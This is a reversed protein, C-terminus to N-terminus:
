VLVLRGRFSTPAMARAGSGQIPCIDRPIASIEQFVDDPSLGTAKTAPPEREREIQRERERQTYCMRPPPVKHALSLSLKHTLTLVHSLTHFFSLPSLYRSTALTPTLTLTLTRTLTLSHTQTLFLSRYLSTPPVGGRTHAHFSLSHTLTLSHTFHTISHPSLYRSM